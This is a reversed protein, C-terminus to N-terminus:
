LFRPLYKVESIKQLEASSGNPQHRPLEEPAFLCLHLFLKEGGLCVYIRLPPRHTHAHKQKGCAPLKPGIRSRENGSFEVGVRTSPAQQQGVELTSYPQEKEPKFEEFHM